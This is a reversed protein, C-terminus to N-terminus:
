ILPTTKKQCANRLRKYRLLQRRLDILDSKNLADNFIILPYNKRTGEFNLLVIFHLVISNSKIQLFYASGSRDWGQWTESRKNWALAVMARRHTRVVHFILTKIYLLLIVLIIGVALYAPVRDSYIMALLVALAGLYLFTFVGFAIHSYGIKLPKTHM